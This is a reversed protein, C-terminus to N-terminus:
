GEEPTAGATEGAVSAPTWRRRTRELREKRRRRKEPGRKSQGKTPSTIQLTPRTGLFFSHGTRRGGPLVRSLARNAPSSYNWDIQNLGTDWERMSMKVMGAQCIATGRIIGSRAGVCDLGAIPCLATGQQERRDLHTCLHRGRVVRVLRAATCKVAMTIIDKTDVRTVTVTKVGKQTKKVEMHPYSLYM